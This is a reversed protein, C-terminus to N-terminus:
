QRRFRDHRRRLARGQSGECHRIPALRGVRRGRDPHPAARRRRARGREPDLHLGQGPRDGRGPDGKRLSEVTNEGLSGWAECQWFVPTGDVWSGATADYRRPNCAVGLNAVAKGTPTYKLEPDATLNGVFSITPENM